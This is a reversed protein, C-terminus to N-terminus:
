SEAGRPRVGHARSGPGLTRPGAPVRLAPPCPSCGCDPGFGKRVLWLGRTARLKGLGSLSCRRDETGVVSRHGSTMAHPDNLRDFLILTAPEAPAEDGRDRGSALAESSDRAKVM